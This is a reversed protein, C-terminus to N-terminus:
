GPTRKNLAHLHHSRYKQSDIPNSWQETTVDDIKSHSPSRCYNRFIVTYKSHLEIFLNNNNNNNNWKSFLSQMRNKDNSSVPVLVVLICTRRLLRFNFNLWKKKKIKFTKNDTQLTKGDKKSIKHEIWASLCRFNYM